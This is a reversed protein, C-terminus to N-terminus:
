TSCISLEGCRTSFVFISRCILLMGSLGGSHRNPHRIPVSGRLGSKRLGLLTSAAGAGSRKEGGAWAREISHERLALTAGSVRRAGSSGDGGRRGLGRGGLEDGEAWSGQQAPAVPASKPRASPRSAISAFAPNWQDIIMEGADASWHVDRVEGRLDPRRAAPPWARPLGRPHAPRRDVAARSVRDGRALAAEAQCRTSGVPELRPDAM